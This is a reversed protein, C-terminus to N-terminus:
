PTGPARPRLRECFRKCFAGCTPLQFGHPPQDRGSSTTSRACKRGLELIGATEHQSREKILEVRKGILDLSVLTSLGTINGSPRALGHVFGLEIPSTVGAMVIPITSTVDKAAKIVVDIPSVIVDVNLAALERIIGPLREFAGEPSCWEIALNKGEIYGLERMGQEFARAFSNIPNAGVLEALPSISAVWGVRYMRRAQQAHAPLLKALAASGLVALAERRRLTM